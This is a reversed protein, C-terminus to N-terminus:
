AWKAHSIKNVNALINIGSCKKTKQPRQINLEENPDDVASPIQDAIRFIPKRIRFEERFRVGVWWRPYIIIYSHFVKLHNFFYKSDRISSPKIHLNEFQFQHGIRRNNWFLLIAVNQSSCKFANWFPWYM